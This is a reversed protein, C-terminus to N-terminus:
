RRISALLFLGLSTYAVMVTLMWYQSRLARRGGHFAELARDHALLLGGVHGCVLAGVQLYWVTATSILSYDITATATGFLNAGRGLPDSALADIAQGQFVLFTCYHALVYAAAIPVLTHVFRTALEARTHSRDASRMGRIGLRFVAAVLLIMFALGVTAGLQAAAEPPAGLRAFTRDLGPALESWQVTSSLGDFSTSGIMVCLLALTGRTVELETLAALPARLVIQGGRRQLPSLRGLLGFYVAFADGRRTWAEVGFLAMGVLQAAAYVLAAVAVTGPASRGTAVLELWAFAALGAVAPWCGLWQPYALPPGVWVPPIRATLRGVARGFARWPNFAAFVDGFLLTVPVLAVWFVVYVFTPALNRGPVPTGALGAYVVLAFLAVGIAGCAVDVGAPVRVVIRSAADRLRPTRWLAGLGVFSLVLVISAAWAFLYGPVAVGPPSPLGHADAPAAPLAWLTAVAFPLVARRSM